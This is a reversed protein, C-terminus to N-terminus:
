INRPGYIGAKEVVLELNDGGLGSANFKSRWCGEKGDGAKELAIVKDNLDVLDKEQFLRTSSNTPNKEHGLEIQLSRAAQNAAERTTYVEPYGHPHYVRIPEQETEESNITESDSAECEDPKDADPMEILKFLRLIYGTNSIFPTGKLSQATQNAHKSVSNRQVYIMTHHKKAPCHFPVITNTFIMCGHEDRKSSREVTMYHPHRQINQFLREAQANAEDINTFQRVTIESTSAENEDQEDSWDKQFISYEFYPEADKSVEPTQALVLIHNSIDRAADLTVASAAPPPVQPIMCVVPATLRNTPPTTPEESSAKLSNEVGSAKELAGFLEASDNAKMSYFIVESTREQATNGKESSEAGLGTESRSLEEIIVVEPDYTTVNKTCPSASLTGESSNETITIPVLPYDYGYNFSSNKTPTVNDYRKGTSPSVKEVKEKELSPTISSATPRSSTAKAVSEFTRKAETPVTCATNGFIAKPIKHASSLNQSRVQKSKPPRSISSSVATKESSATKNFRGSIYPHNQKTRVEKFSPTDSGSADSSESSTSSEDSAGSFHHVAKSDYREDQYQLQVKNPESRSPVRPEFTSSKLKPTLSSKTKSLTSKKFVQNTETPLSRPFQQQNPMHKMKSPNRSIFSQDSNAYASGNATIQAVDESPFIGRNKKKKGKIGIDAGLATNPALVPRQQQVHRDYPTFSDKAAHHSKFIPDMNRSAINSRRDVTISSSTEQTPVSPFTQREATKVKGDRGLLANLRSKYTENTPVTATAPGARLSSQMATPTKLPKPIHHGPPKSQVKFEFKSDDSDDSDDDDDDDDDSSEDSESSMVFGGKLNPRKAVRGGALQSLPRKMPTDPKKVAKKLFQKYQSYM